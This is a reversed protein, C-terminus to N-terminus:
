LHVLADFLDQGLEFLFVERVLAAGFDDGLAALRPAAVDLQGQEAVGVM